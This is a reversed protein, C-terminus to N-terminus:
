LECEELAAKWGHLALYGLAENWENVARVYYQVNALVRAWTEPTHGGRSKHEVVEGDASYVIIQRPSRDDTDIVCRWPRPAVGVLSTAPSARAFADM